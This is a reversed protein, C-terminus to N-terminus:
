GVPQVKRTVSAAREAPAPNMTTMEPFMMSIGPRGFTERVAEMSTSSEPSIMPTQSAAPPLEGVVLHPTTPTIHNPENRRFELKLRTGLFTRRSAFVKSGAAM